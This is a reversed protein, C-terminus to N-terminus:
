EQPAGPIARAAELIEAYSQTQTDNDNSVMKTEQAVFLWLGLAIAIILSIIGFM